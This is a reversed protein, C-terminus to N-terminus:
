YFLEKIIRIVTVWDAIDLQVYHSSDTVSGGDYSGYRKTSITLQKEIINMCNCYEDSAM